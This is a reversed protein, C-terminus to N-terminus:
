KKESNAAPKESSKSKGYSTAPASERQESVVNTVDSTEEATTGAPKPTTALKAATQAEVEVSRGQLNGSSSLLEKQRLLEAIQFDISRKAQEEYDPNGLAFEADSPLKSEETYQTNGILVSGGERIAKVAMDRTLFDNRAMQIRGIEPLRDTVTLGPSDAYPAEYERGGGHIEFGFSTESRNM